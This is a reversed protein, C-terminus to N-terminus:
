EQRQSALCPHGQGACRSCEFDLPSTEESQPRWRYSFFSSYSITSGSFWEQEDWLDSAFSTTAWITELIWFASCVNIGHRQLRVTPKASPWYRALVEGLMFIEHVSLEQAAEIWRPTPSSNFDTGQAWAEGSDQLRSSRCGTGECFRVRALTPIRNSQWASWCCGAGRHPVYTGRCFRLSLSQPIHPAHRQLVWTHSPSARWSKCFADCCSNLHAMSQCWPAMTVTWCGLMCASARLVAFSAEKKNRKKM